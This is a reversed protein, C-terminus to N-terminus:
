LVTKNMWANLDICTVLASGISNISIAPCQIPLSQGDLLGLVHAVCYVDPGPGGQVSCRAIGQAPEASLVSVLALAAKQILADASSPFAGTSQCACRGAVPLSCDVLGASANEKLARNILTYKRLLKAVRLKCAHRM